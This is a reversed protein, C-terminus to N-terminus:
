GEKGGEECIRKREKTGKIKKGEESRQGREGERVKYAKWLDIRDREERMRRREEVEKGREGLGNRTRQGMKDRRDKVASINNTGAQEEGSTTIGAHCTRKQPTVHNFYQRPAGRQYQIPLCM